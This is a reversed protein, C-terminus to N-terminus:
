AAGRSPDVGVGATLDMSLLDDRGGRVRDAQGNAQDSQVDQESDSPVEAM